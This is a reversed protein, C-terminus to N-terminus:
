KLLYSESASLRFKFYHGPWMAKFFLLTRMGSVASLFVIVASVVVFCDKNETSLVLCRHQSRHACIATGLFEEHGHGAQSPPSM